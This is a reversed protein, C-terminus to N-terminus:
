DFSQQILNIRDKSESIILIFTHNYWNNIREGTESLPKYLSICTSIDISAVHVTTTCYM